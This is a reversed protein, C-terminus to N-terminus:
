ESATSVSRAANKTPHRNAVADSSSRSASAVAASLLAKGRGNVDGTVGYCRLAHAQEVDNGGVKGRRPVSARNVRDVTKAAGQSSASVADIDDRRVDIPLVIRVHRKTHRHTEVSHLDM